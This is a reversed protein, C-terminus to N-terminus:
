ALRCYQFDGLFRFRHVALHCALRWSYSYSILCTGLFVLMGASARDHGGSASWPLSSLWSTVRSGVDLNMLTAFECGIIVWWCFCPRISSICSWGVAPCGPLSSVM